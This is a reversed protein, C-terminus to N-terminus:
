LKRGVDFALELYQVVERSVDDLRLLLQFLFRSRVDGASPQHSYRPDSRVRRKAKDRREVLNTSELSRVLHLGVKAEHWSLIRAGFSFASRSDGFCAGSSKPM